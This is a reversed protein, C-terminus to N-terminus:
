EGVASYNRRRQGKVTNRRPVGGGLRPPASSSGAHVGRMRIGTAHTPAPPPARVGGRRLEVRSTAPPAPRRGAGLPSLSPCASGVGCSRSPINRTNLAQLLPKAPPPSAWPCWWGSFEPEARGRPAKEGKGSTGPRSAPCPSPMQSVQMERSGEKEGWGM